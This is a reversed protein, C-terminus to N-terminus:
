SAPVNRLIEPIIDKIGDIAFQVAIVSLLLGMLRVLINIGTQGCLKMLYQSEKLIFYTLASVVLIISLIILYHFIDHCNNRLLIITTIAGPGSLLPIALPFFSVDEKEMAEREEQPSTKQSPKFVFLMRLSIIFILIGGAIRFAEITIHFLNLILNGTLLFFILILGSAISAKGVIQKREIFNNKPTIALFLPVNGIPDIIFFLAAFAFSAFNFYESIMFIRRHYFVRHKATTIYLSNAEATLRFHQDWSLQRLINVIDNIQVSSLPRYTIIKFRSM